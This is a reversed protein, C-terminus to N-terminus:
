TANTRFKCVQRVAVASIPMPPPIVLPTVYKPVCSPLLASLRPVSESQSSGDEGGQQAEQHQQLHVSQQDLEDLISKIREVLADKSQLLGQTSAPEATAARPRPPGDAATATVLLVVLFCQLTYSQNLICMIRSNAPVDSTNSKGALPQVTLLLTLRSSKM